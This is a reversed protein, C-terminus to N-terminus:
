EISITGSGIITGPENVWKANQIFMRIQDNNIYETIVKRKGSLIKGIEVKGSPYIQIGIPTFVFAEINRNIDTYRTINDKIAIMDIPNMAIVIEKEKAEKVQRVVKNIQDLIKQINEM